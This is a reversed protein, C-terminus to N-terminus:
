FSLKAGLVIQRTDTLPTATNTGFATNAMRAEPPQFNNHNFLNTIDSRLQIQVGETIAFRKALNLNWNSAQKM